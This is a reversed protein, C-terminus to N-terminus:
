RLVEVFVTDAIASGFVGIGDGEIHFKPELLNGDLEQIMNHTLLFDTFNEDAAYLILRYPGYFWTSFYEIDLWSQGAGKQTQHWQYQHRLFNFFKLEDSDDLEDFRDKEIGFINSEIFTELSADLAVVSLIYSDSSPSREYVVQMKKNAPLDESYHIPGLFSDQERVAFGSEPVTTTSSAVLNMGDITAAVDLRYTKGTEITWVKASMYDYAMTLSNFELGYMQDAEVDTITVQANDIFLENLEINQGLGYNRSIRINNAAQGPFLYGEVVIKPNYTDKDLEVPVDGCSNLVSLIAASLLILKIAHKM